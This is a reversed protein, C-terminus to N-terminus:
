ISLVIEDCNPLGATLVRKDGICRTGALNLYKLGKCNVLDDMYGRVGSFSLDLRRLCVTSSGFISIDGGVRPCKSLNLLEINKAMALIKIDGTCSTESIDLTKLNAGVATIIERVDVQLDTHSMNLETLSKCDPLVSTAFKKWDVQSAQFREYCLVQQNNMINAFTEAFKNKVFGKDSPNTFTKSDLEENFFAPASPLTREAQLRHLSAGMTAQSRARKKLSDVVVHHAGFATRTSIDRWPACLM